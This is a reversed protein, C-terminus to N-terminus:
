PRGGPAQAKSQRLVKRPINAAAAVGSSANAAPVKSFDVVPQNPYLRQMAVQYAQNWALVRVTDEHMAKAFKEAYKQREAESRAHIGLAEIPSLNPVSFAARPGKLLLKARHLEEPTLGWIEIALRDAGDVSTLQRGTNAASTVQAARQNISVTSTAVGQAGANIAVMTLLSFIIKM